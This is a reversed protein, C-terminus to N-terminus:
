FHDTAQAQIQGATNNEVTFHDGFVMYITGNNVTCGKIHVYSSRYGGINGESICNEVRINMTQPDAKSNGNIAITVSGSHFVNLFVSNNHEGAPLLTCNRVIINSSPKSINIDYWMPYKITFNEIIINSKLNTSIGYYRSGIQINENVPDQGFNAYLYGSNYDWQNLSLSAYNGANYHRVTEGDVVIWPIDAITIRYINGSYQSWSGNLPEAGNIVPNEGNGYAGFTIPNGESGSRPSGLQERWIEGRKFFINDGPLFSSKNVKNITKWATEPTLGSGSDDPRSADVYYAAAKPFFPMSGFLLLFLIGSLIIYIKMKANDAEALRPCSTDNKM